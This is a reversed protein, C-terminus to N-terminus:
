WEDVVMYYPMASPLMVWMERPLSLKVKNIALGLQVLKEIDKNSNTWQNGENDFSMNLFSCGGGM